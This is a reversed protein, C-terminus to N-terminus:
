DIKVGQSLICYLNDKAHYEFMTYTKTAPNYYFSFPIVQMENQLGDKSRIKTIEQELDKEM